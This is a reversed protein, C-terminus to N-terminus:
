GEIQSSSVRGNLPNRQINCTPALLMSSCKAKTDRALLGGVQHILDTDFTSGLATACPICNAPTPMFHSSGRVGNQIVDLDALRYRNGPRKMLECPWRFMQNVARRHSSDTCYEV